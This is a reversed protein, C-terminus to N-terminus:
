GGEGSVRSTTAAGSKLPTTLSRKEASVSVCVRKEMFGGTLARIEADGRLTTMVDTGPLHM